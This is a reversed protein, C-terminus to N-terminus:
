AMAGMVATNTAMEVVVAAAAMAAMAAAKTIVDVVAVVL